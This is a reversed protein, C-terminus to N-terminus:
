NTRFKQLETLMPDQSDLGVHLMFPEYPQHYEKTSLKWYLIGKLPSEKFSAHTEFLARVALAREKYDIPQDEWVVLHNKDAQRIISFGAGNWPELTSHRRYTYGLETFIVQKDALENAIRFSDIQAFVSQWSKRLSDPFTPSKDSEIEDRLKFYANIGMYNLHQWFDVEHYNDFNAAYSIKGDYVQRVKTILNIWCRKLLKRRQNIKTIFDPHEQYAVQKAWATQAAQRAAVFAEPTPYNERGRVWLHRRELSDSFALLQQKQQRQKKPDLYFAILNPLTDVPATASLANMESGLIFVDVGEREAIAAWKLAYRAYEDFWARVQEDSKPMIMGHWLFENEPYNSDLLARLILVVHLDHTRATRIEHVIATDQEDFTLEASHWEAQRAYVTVSVTNMGVAQLTKAWEAHDPENVQIGGLYFDPETNRNVFFFVLLALLTIVTLLVLSNRLM